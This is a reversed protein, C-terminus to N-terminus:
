APEYEFGVKLGNVDTVTVTLPRETGNRAVLTCDGTAGKEGALEACEVSGFAVAQARLQREITDAVSPGDIFIASDYEVDEGEVATVTPRIGTRSDDGTFVAACDQTAGVEALLPGECTVEVQEAGEGTINSRVDEELAAQEIEPNSSGISIDGSCAAVPLLLALCALRALRAHATATRPITTM